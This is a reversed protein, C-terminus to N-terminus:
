YVPQRINLALMGKIFRYAYWIALVAALPYIFIIGVVSLYLFFSIIGLAVCCIVARWFTDIQWQMHSSMLLNQDHRKLYNIILAAIASLGGTFFLCCHLVYALWIVGREDPPYDPPSQHQYQNM